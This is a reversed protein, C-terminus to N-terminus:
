VPPSPQGSIIRLPPRKRKPLCRLLPELLALTVWVTFVTGATLLWALACIAAVPWHERLAIFCFAFTLPAIPIMVCWADLGARTRTSSYYTPHDDAFEKRAIMTSMLVILSVGGFWAAFLWPSPDVKIM